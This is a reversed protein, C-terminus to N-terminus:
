RRRCVDYENQDVFCYDTSNCPQFIYSESLKKAFYELEEHTAKELRDILNDTDELIRYDM